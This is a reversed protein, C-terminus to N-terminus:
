ISRNQGNTQQGQRIHRLKVSHPATRTKAAVTPISQHAKLTTKMTMELALM